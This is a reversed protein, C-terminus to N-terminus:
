GIPEGHLYVPPDLHEALTRGKKAPRWGPQEPQRRGRLRHEGITPELYV